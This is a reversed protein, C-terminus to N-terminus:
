PWHELEESEVPEPTVGADALFVIVSEDSHDIFMREPLYWRGDVFVRVKPNPEEVSAGLSCLSEVFETLKM